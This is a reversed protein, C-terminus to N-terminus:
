LASTNEQIIHALAKDEGELNVYEITSLNNIYDVKSKDTDYIEYAKLYNEVDQLTATKCNGLGRDLQIFISRDNKVLTTKHGVTLTEINLEWGDKEFRKFKEINKLMKM